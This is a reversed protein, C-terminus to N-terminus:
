FVNFEGNHKKHKEKKKKQHSAFTLVEHAMLVERSLAYQKPHSASLEGAVADIPKPKTFTSTLTEQQEVSLQLLALREPSYFGELILSQIWMIISWQWIVNIQDILKILYINM